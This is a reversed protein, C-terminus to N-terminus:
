FITCNCRTKEKITNPDDHCNELNYKKFSPVDIVQAENKNWRVKKKKTTTSRDKNNSSDEGKPKKKTKIKGPSYSLENNNPEKQTRDITDQTKKNTKNISLSNSPDM